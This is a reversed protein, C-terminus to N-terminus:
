AAPPSVSSKQIPRGATSATFSGDAGNWESGFLVGTVVDDLARRRAERRVAEDLVGHRVLRLSRDSPATGTEPRGTSDRHAGAVCREFLTSVRADREAAWAVFRFALAAHRMEDDAISELARRLEPDAAEDAAWSAELAAVTEGICGEVVVLEVVDLLTTEALAGDMALPGPTTATAGYRAALSFCMQAHRTEDAMARTAEEVLSAPAGLALLQLAFRAFAAISAHELLAANVFHEAVLQRENESLDPPDSPTALRADLWSRENASV